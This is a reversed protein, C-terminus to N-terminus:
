GAIGPRRKGTRLLARRVGGRINKFRVTSSFSKQPPTNRLRTLVGHRAPVNISRAVSQALLAANNTGTRLRRSWYMPVPVVLDVDFDRLQDGRLKGLLQGLALSLPNHTPRKMRLVAESLGARYNGLVVIADFWLRLGRCDPCDDTIPHGDAIPAGCRRCGRWKEPGFRALCEACLYPGTSVSRLEARCFACCPPLLLRGYAGVIGRICSKVGSGGHMNIRIPFTSKLSRLLLRTAVLFNLSQKM